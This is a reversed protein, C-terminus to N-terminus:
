KQRRKGIFKFFADLEEEKFVTIGNELFVEVAVGNGPVLTHSFTGDYITDKGCSPSKSKLLVVEIKNKKLIELAKYAGQYYEKTEDEGHISLVKDKVRECPDRPIKMGGLVEPCIMIAEKNKVMKQVEEMWHNGGRYTCNVGALCSSIGIM